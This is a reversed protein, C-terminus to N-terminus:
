AEGATATGRAPSSKLERRAVILGPILPLWLTLSRLMLTAGLGAEIPVKLLSLTAVSAGEFLGLGAPVVGVIAAIHALVYAAFTAGPPPATGLARLMCELTGADLVIIGLQCLAAVAILRPNRVLEPRAAAVQRLIPIRSAWAPAGPRALALISGPVLLALGGFIAAGAFVAPPLDQMVLISGVISVAHAFYFGLLDVLICATADRLPAGRRHLGAVVLASGGIGGSPLVQDVFLKGVALSMMAAPRVLGRGLVTTWVIAECVYTGLQLAAGATFWRLDATHLLEVFRAQDGRERIILVVVVLLLLGFILGWARKM